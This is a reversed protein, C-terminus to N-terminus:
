EFIADLQPSVKELRAEMSRIAITSLYRGLPLIPKILSDKKTKLESKNIKHYPNIATEKLAIEYENGLRNIVEKTHGYRVNSLTALPAGLQTETKSIREGEDNTILLNVIKIKGKLAPYSENIIRNFVNAVSLSVRGGVNDYYGADAYQDTDIRGKSNIKDIEGVPTVFPFSANIRMATSLAISKNNHSEQIHSIFDTVGAFTNVHDYKVPSIVNYSGTQTHTTNILLLPSINKAISTNNIKDIEKKYFGLYEKELLGQTCGKCSFYEKHARNWQEELLRGRDNFSSINTINKFLDRGLLALLSTSLFNHKYIESAKYKLEHHNISEKNDFSLKATRNENKATQVEAFFMANGVSGGSAGTLSLLHDEFYAGKTTEYLYSHVLFSWLGARSGGGQASVLVVPFQGKHNKIKEEREEIWTHLYDEILPREVKSELLPLQYHIFSSSTSFFRGLFLCTIAVITLLPIKIKKGLLILFFAVMYLSIFVILIISLPNFSSALNPALNLVVYIFFIIIGSSIILGYFWKESLSNLVKRSNFALTFFTLALASNSLFLNGLDKEAQTNLTGLSVIFLLLGLLVSLIILDTHPMKNLKKKFKVYLGPETLILLFAICGLLVKNPNLYETYINELEFLKMGQLIGLASILLLLTALIRPIVKRLHIKLDYSYKLGINQFRYHQNPIFGIVNKASIEKYNHFYFYKPTNWILFAAITLLSFYLPVELLFADAQNLILLLDMTQPFHWLTVYIMVVFLVSILNYALENLLLKFWMSLKQCWILGKESLKKLVM